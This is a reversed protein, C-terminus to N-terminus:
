SGGANSPPPAAVLLNLESNIQDPQKEINFYRVNINLITKTLIILYRCPIEYYKGRRDKLNKRFPYRLLISDLEGNADIYYYMLEGIYIIENGGIECLIDIGKFNLESFEDPVDPFDLIEGSLIYHWKNSFRFFLYKRDLKFFRVLEKFSYGLVISIFLVIGIYEIIDNQYKAINEFSTKLLNSDNNPLLLFGLIQFDLEKKFYHKFFSLALFNIFIAPIISWFIDQIINSHIARTSFPRSFYSFRFIIGPSFILFLLVTGFVLNM